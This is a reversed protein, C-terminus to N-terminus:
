PQPKIVPYGNPMNTNPLMKLVPMHYLTPDASLLLIPMHDTVAAIVTPATTITEPAANIAPAFSQYLKQKLRNEKIIQLFPKPTIKQATSSMVFFCGILTLINIKM